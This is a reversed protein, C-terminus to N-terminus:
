GLEIERSVAEKEETTENSILEMKCNLRHRTYQEETWKPSRDTIFELGYPKENLETIKYILKRM